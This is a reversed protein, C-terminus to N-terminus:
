TVLLIGNSTLCFAFCVVISKYCPPIQLYQKLSYIVRDYLVQVLAKIIIVHFAPRSVTSLQALHRTLQMCLVALTHDLSASQLGKNTLHIRLAV